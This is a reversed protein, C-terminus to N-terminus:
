FVITRFGARLQQTRRRSQRFVKLTARFRTWGCGLRRAEDEMAFVHWDITPIEVRRKGPACPRMQSFRRRPGSCERGLKEYSSM